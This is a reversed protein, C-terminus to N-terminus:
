FPVDEDGVAGAPVEEGEGSSVAEHNAVIPAQSRIRKDLEDIEKKFFTNIATPNSIMEGGVEVKPIAPLNEKEYKGWIPEGGAQRLVANSFGEKGNKPKGKYVSIELDNFSELACLSNMLQRGMFTFPISVFYVENGDRLTANVSIIDKKGQYKFTKNKVGILDGSVRTATGVKQAKDQGEKRELVEFLPAPLDKDKLNFSLVKVNPGFGKSGTGYAM